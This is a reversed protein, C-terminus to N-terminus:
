VSKLLRTCNLTNGSVVVGERVVICRSGRVVPWGNSHLCSFSLIHGGGGLNVAHLLSFCLSLWLDEKGSVGGVNGVLEWKVAEVVSRGGVVPAPVKSVVGVTVEVVVIVPGGKHVLVYIM